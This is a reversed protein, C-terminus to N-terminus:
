KNSIVNEVVGIILDRSILGFQRSDVSLSHNDGRVDVGHLNMEHIRKIILKSKKEPHKIVVIQGEKLSSSIPRYVVLDGDNVSPKMSSGVVRLHRVIRFLLLLFIKLSLDKSIQRDVQQSGIIVEEKQNGFCTM